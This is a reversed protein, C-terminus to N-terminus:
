LLEEVDFQFKYSNHTYDKRVQTIAMPSNVMGYITTSYSRLSNELFPMFVVPRSAGAIRAMLDFQSRAENESLFSWSARAFRRKNRKNVWLNQGYNLIKQSPDVYQQMHNQDLDYEPQIFSGCGLWGLDLYANPNLQDEITWRIYRGAYTGDNATIEVALTTDSHVIASYLQEPQFNLTGDDKYIIPAGDNGVFDSGDYVDEDYGEVSPWAYFLADFTKSTFAADSAIEVRITCNASFNHRVLFSAPIFQQRGLDATIVQNSNSTSRWKEGPQFSQVNTIPLAASTATLTASEILNNWFLAARNAM